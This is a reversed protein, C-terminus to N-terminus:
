NETNHYNQLSCFTHVESYRVGVYPNHSLLIPAAEEAM